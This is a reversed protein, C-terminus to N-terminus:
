PLLRSLLDPLVYVALFIGAIIGLFFTIVIWITACCRSLGKRSCVHQWPLDSPESPESFESTESPESYDSPESTESPESLESPQSFESPESPESPQSFESPLPNLIVIKEEEVVPPVKEEENEPMPEDADDLNIDEDLHIPSFIDFPENVKAAFVEDPIFQIIQGDTEFTGLGKITASEGITLSTEIVGFFENVFTRAVEESLNERLALRAILNNVPIISNM